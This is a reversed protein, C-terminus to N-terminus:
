LLDKKNLYLTSSTHLTKFNNELLSCVEEFKEVLDITFEFWESNIQYSLYYKHLAKELQYNFATPFTKILVLTTGNGIQLEKLRKLPDKKTIGIKYLNTDSQNILYITKLSM